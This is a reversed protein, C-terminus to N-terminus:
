GEGMTDSLTHDEDVGEAANTDGTGGFVQFFITRTGKQHYAVRSYRPM